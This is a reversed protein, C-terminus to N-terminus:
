KGIDGTVGKDKGLVMNRWTLERWFKETDEM